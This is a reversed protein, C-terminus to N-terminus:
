DSRRGGPSTPQIQPATGPRTTAARSGARGALEQFRFENDDQLRKLAAELQQNRYQMQELQGTLLRIQNELRDIRVLLEATGAQAFAITPSALFCSATIAAFVARNLMMRM